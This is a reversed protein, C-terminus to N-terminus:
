KAGGSVAPDIININAMFDAEVVLQEQVWIQGSYFGIDGRVKIIETQVRLQDGPVIPRRFRAQDIGVLICQLRLADAEPQNEKRYKLFPYLSFAATQALVELALVGPMIAREPFHGRFYSESITVNKVSFVKVGIASKNSPSALDVGEPLQIQDVRDVFLFPDRHPLFAKVEDAGLRYEM